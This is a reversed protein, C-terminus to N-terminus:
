FKIDFIQNIYEILGEKDPFLTIQNINMEKFLFDIDYKVKSPIFLKILDYKCLTLINTKKKIQIFLIVIM